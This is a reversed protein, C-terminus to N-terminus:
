KWLDKSAIEAGEVLAVQLKAWQVEEHMRQMNWGQQFGCDTSAIVNERGVVSAYNKIRQAILEPHEVVNTSHSVVGPILIKGEPLKVDKWIMWEHEHRPNAGEISYAQANIKLILDVVEKLPVDTTHPTNMSGWCMHYRVKEPPIGRLAHNYAEVQMESASACIRGLDAGAQGALVQNRVPLGLDLQVIFGADVIAKYEEHM